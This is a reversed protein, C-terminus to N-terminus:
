PDPGMKVLFQLSGLISKGKIAGFCGHGKLSVMGRLYKKEESVMM